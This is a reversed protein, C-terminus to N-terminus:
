FEEAKLKTIKTDEVYEAKLSGLKAFHESNKHAAVAVSDKWIETLILEDEDIGYSYDYRINGHESQSLRGVGNDRIAKYFDERRGKKCKYTILLVIM